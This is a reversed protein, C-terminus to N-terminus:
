VLEVVIPFSFFVNSVFTNFVNVLSLPKLYSFRLGFLFRISLSSISAQLHTVM